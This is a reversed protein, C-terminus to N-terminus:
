KKKQLLKAVDSTIEYKDQVFAIGSSDIVMAYGKKKAVTESASVVTDYFKKMAKEKEANVEQGFKSEETIIEQQQEQLKKEAEAAKKQSLVPKEKEFKEFEKKIAKRKNVLEDHRPGFKAQLQEQMTEMQTSEQLLKGMNIVAINFEAFASTAVLSSLLLVSPLLFRKIM